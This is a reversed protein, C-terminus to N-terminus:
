DDKVRKLLRFVDYSPDAAGPKGIYSGEIMPHDLRTTSPTNVTAWDAVVARYSFKWVGDRKEYRDFYRGGIMLDMPGDETAVQHYALIYIEGEAYDGEIVINTTTVNHHLILM